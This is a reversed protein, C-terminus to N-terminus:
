RINENDKLVMITKVNEYLVCHGSNKNNNTNNVVQTLIEVM